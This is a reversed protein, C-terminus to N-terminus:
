TSGYSSPPFLLFNSFTIPVLLLVYPFTRFPVFSYSSAPCLELFHSFTPVPIFLHSFTLVLLFFYLLAPRVRLGAGGAFAWGASAWPRASATLAIILTKWVKTNQEFRRPFKSGGYGGGLFRPDSGYGTLIFSSPTDGPLRSSLMTAPILASNRLFVDLALLDWM